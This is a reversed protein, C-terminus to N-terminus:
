YIIEMGESDENEFQREVVMEEHSNECEDLWVVQILDLILIEHSDNDKELSRV